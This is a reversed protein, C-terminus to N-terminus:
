LLTRGSAPANHIDGDIVRMRTRTPPQERTLVQAM